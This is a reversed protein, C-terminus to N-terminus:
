FSYIQNTESTLHYRQKFQEFTVIMMVNSRLIALRVFETL